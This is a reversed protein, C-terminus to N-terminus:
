KKISLFQKKTINGLVDILDVLTIDNEIALLKLKKHSEKTILCRKYKNM